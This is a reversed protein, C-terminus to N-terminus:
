RTEVRFFYCNTETNSPFSVTHSKDCSLVAHVFGCISSKIPLKLSTSSYTQAIKKGVSKITSYATDRGCLMLSYEPLFYYKQM